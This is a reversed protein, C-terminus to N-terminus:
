NRVLEKKSQCVLDRKYKYYSNRSVGALTIVDPDALTGGFSKSHKLIIEKAAAAKKVHLKAGQVQGIQKGVLRATEIGEITRQRLDDVEKQSQEFALRIQERALELLYKNIGELIYDVTTGTMPVAKEMAVKFTETNIHPEKLFELTVGQSYLEQYVDFGEEANRSMRSVSDFVIVDGPKVQRKLQIWKPRDMSTGTFAEEVIVAEPYKERINRIQRDISQQGTSIRTYGYIRGM